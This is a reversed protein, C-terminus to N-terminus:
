PRNVAGSMFGRALVTELPEPRHLLFGQAMAVGIDRLIVLTEEDEVYEATLVCDLESAIDQLCDVIKRDLASRRLNAVISGDIKLGDVEFDRLYGFSSLGKGFDDLAIKFGSSRASRMFHQAAEVNTMTATETLEFWISAPKCSFEEATASVYDWLRPDSLTQASLNFAITRGGLSQGHRELATRIVWRDLASAVGYREAASVFQGPLVPMGGRTTLRSLVEVHRAPGFPDLVSRIEQGFLRLRGDQKADNLDSVLRAATLGSVDDGADGFVSWRNRGSGKAAYCADDAMAILDAVAHNGTEVVAIGVSAGFDSQIGGALAIDGIGAIVEDALTKASEVDLDGALAFEDGGLRAVNGKGAREVLVMAVDRLTQDGVAHGGADNIAKFFDLDIYLVALPARLARLRNALRTEFTARNILGTLADHEAAWILRQQHLVDETVDRITGILRRQGNAGPVSRTLTEVHRVQGDNRIIRYRIEVTAEGAAVHAEETRKRDEPHLFDHWTQAPQRMGFPSLGFIERTRGDWYSTDSQHDLEWIGVDSAEMAIRFRENIEQLEHEVAKQKSIDAQVGVMRTPRGADDREVIGGRDLVWLWNGSKHRLRLETEIEAQEGRLHREGSEVARARDDPHTLELWLRSTQELEGPDYGLMAFWSDSYRCTDTVLDWDWVGLRARWIGHEFADSSPPTPSSLTM